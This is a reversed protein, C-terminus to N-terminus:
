RTGEIKYFTNATESEIMIMDHSNFVTREIMCQYDSNYPCKSHRISMNILLANDTILDGFAWLLITIGSHINTHM